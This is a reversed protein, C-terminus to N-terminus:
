LRMPNGIEVGLYRAHDDIMGPFCFPNRGFSLSSRSLWTKHNLSMGTVDYIMTFVDAVVPLSERLSATSLAFDDAYACACRQLFWPRQPEPPLVTSMLWRYVPDFAMNFLYGSASCGQRMGRMM